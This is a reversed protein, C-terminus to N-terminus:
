KGSGKKYPPTTYQHIPNNLLNKQGYVTNEKLDQVYREIVDTDSYNHTHPTTTNEHIGSKIAKVKNAYTASGPGVFQGAKSRTWIEQLSQKAKDKLSYSSVGLTSNLQDIGAISSNFEQAQVYASKNYQQRSGHIGSKHDAYTHPATTWTHNHQSTLQKMKEQWWESGPGREAYGELYGLTARTDHSSKLFRQLINNLGLQAVQDQRNKLTKTKIKQYKTIQDIRSEGYEYKAPKSPALSEHYLNGMAYGSMKVLNNKTLSEAADIYNADNPTTNKGINNSYKASYANSRVSDQTNNTTNTNINDDYSYYIGTSGFMFKNFENNNYQTCRDYNIKLVGKGLQFPAENNMDDPIMSGITEKDFECGNFEFLKFSMTNEISDPNTGKYPYKEGNSKIATHLTKIPTNFIMILMDFKRMNDPLVEKNSFDDYCIFRYLDMLTTLRMDIAEQNCEIEISREKSFENTIPVGAKALGRISRFFWPANCNIYSLIKVFKTLAQYRENPILSKYWKSDDLSMYKLYKSASNHTNQPNYDNLIGGFLGHQTDFRFFIKFYFYGPDGFPDSLGKQWITRENIWMSYDFYPVSLTQENSPSATLDPDAITDSDNNDKSKLFYDYQNRSNAPNKEDANKGSTTYAQTLTSPMYNGFNTNNSNNDLLYNSSNNSYLSDYVSLLSTSYNKTIGSSLGNVVGNKVSAWAQNAIGNVSNRAINSISKGIKSLFGM